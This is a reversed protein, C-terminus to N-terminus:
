DILFGLYVIRLYFFLENFVNLINSMLNMGIFWLGRENLSGSRKVKVRWFHVWVLNKSMVFFKVFVLSSLFLSSERIESKVQFILFGLRIEWTRIGKSEFLFDFVLWSMFSLALKSRFISELLVKRLFNNFTFNDFTVPLSVLRLFLKFFVKLNLFDLVFQLLYFTNSQNSSSPKKSSM